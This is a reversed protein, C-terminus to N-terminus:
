SFCVFCQRFHHVFCLKHYVNEAWQWYLVNEEEFSEILGILTQQIIEVDALAGVADESVDGTWNVNVKSKVETHVENSYTGTENQRLEGQPDPYRVRSAASTEM